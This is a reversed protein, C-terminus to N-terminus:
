VTKNKRPRHDLTEATLKLWISINKAMRLFKVPADIQNRKNLTLWQNIKMFNHTHTNHTKIALIYSILLLFM